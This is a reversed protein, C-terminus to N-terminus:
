LISCEPLLILTVFTINKAGPSAVIKRIGNAKLLAILIQVNKEDTYLQKM